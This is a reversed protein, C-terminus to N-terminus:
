KIASINLSVSSDDIAAYGADRFPAFELRVREFRAAQRFGIEALLSKLTVFSYGYFHFDYRNTQGGYVIDCALDASRQAQETDYQPISQLYKKFLAELDPVCIYLKGGPKLVRHWEALVRRTHKRRIHEFVHSAYIMDVSSQRLKLKRLGAIVDSDVFLSADLNLFDAIRLNGAGLHLGKFETGMLWYVWGHYLVSRFHRAPRLLMRTSNLLSGADHLIRRLRRFFYSQHAVNM